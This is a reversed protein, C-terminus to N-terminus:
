HLHICDNCSFCLLVLLESIFAGIYKMLIPIKTNEKMLM